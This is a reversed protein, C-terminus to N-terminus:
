VNNTNRPDYAAGDPIHMWRTVYKDPFSPQATTPIVDWERKEYNFQGCFFGRVNPNVPATEFFVLVSFSSCDDILPPKAMWNDFWVEKTTKGTIM